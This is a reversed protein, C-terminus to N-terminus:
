SKREKGKGNAKGKDKSRGTRAEQGTGPRQDRSKGKDKGKGKGKGKRKAALTSLPGLLTAGLLAAIAARRSQKSAIRQALTDFQGSDM